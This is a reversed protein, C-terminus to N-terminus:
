ADVGDGGTFYASVGSTFSHFYSKGDIWIVTADPLNWCICKGDTGRDTGSLTGSWFTGAYFSYYLSLHMGMNKVVM